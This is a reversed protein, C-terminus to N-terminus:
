IFEKHVGCCGWILEKYRKALSKNVKRGLELADEETLTSKDRISHLRAWESMRERIFAAVIVSWDIPFELMRRKLDDSIDIRLEAM